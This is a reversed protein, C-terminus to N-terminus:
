GAGCKRVLGQMCPGRMMTCLHINKTTSKSKGFGGIHLQTFLSVYAYTDGMCLHTMAMYPCGIMTMKIQYNLLMKGLTPIKPPLIKMFNQSSEGFIKRMRVLLSLPPAFFTLIVKDKTRPRTGLGSM